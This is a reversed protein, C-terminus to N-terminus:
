SWMLWKLPTKWFSQFLAFLFFQEQRWSKELFIYNIEPFIVSKVCTLEMTTVSNESLKFLLLFGEWGESIYGISDNRSANCAVTTYETNEKLFSNQHQRKVHKM